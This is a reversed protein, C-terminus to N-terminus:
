QRILGVACHSVRTYIQAGAKNFEASKEAMGDSLANQKAIGQEAAYKRIDETIKMSCFHPGCTSCGEEDFSRRSPSNRSSFDHHDATFRVVIVSENCDCLEFGRLFTRKM